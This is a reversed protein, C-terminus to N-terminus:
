RRISKRLKKPINLNSNKQFNSDSVKSICKKGQVINYSIISKELAQLIKKDKSYISNM